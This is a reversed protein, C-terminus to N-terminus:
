GLKEVAERVRHNLPLEYLYYSLAGLAITLLGFIAFSIYTDFRYIFETFCFLVLAHWLYMGYSIKGPYALPRLWASDFIDLNVGGLVLLFLSAALLTPEWIFDVPYIPRAYLIAFLGMGSAFLLWAAGKNKSLFKQTKKFALYLTVGIAIEEFGSFSNFLGLHFNTPDKLYVMWRSGVGLVVALVLFGPLLARPKFYKLILPYVLYFQEEISLSWLVVWYLGYFSQHLIFEKFVVLWNFTFTLISMFFVVDFSVQAGRFTMDPEGSDELALLFIVGVVIVLLLLPVIRAVRRAYFAKLRPKSLGGLDKDIL